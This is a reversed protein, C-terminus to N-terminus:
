LSIILFVIFTVIASGLLAGLFPMKFTDGLEFILGVFLFAYGIGVETNIGLGSIGFSAVFFHLALLAISIILLGHGILEGGDAM